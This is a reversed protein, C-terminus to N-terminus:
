TPRRATHGTMIIKQVRSVSADEKLAGRTSPFRRAPVDISRPWSGRLNATM